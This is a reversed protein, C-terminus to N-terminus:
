KKNFIRGKLIWFLYANKHIYGALIWIMLGVILAIVLRIALEPSLKETPPTIIYGKVAKKKPIIKEKINEDQRIGQLRDDIIKLNNQLTEIDKKDSNIKNGILLKANKGREAARQESELVTDLKQKENELVSIKRKLASIPSWEDTYSIRLNELESRLTILAGDIERVRNMTEVLRASDPEINKLEIEYNKLRKNIEDIKEEVEARRGSLASYMKEYYIGSMKEPKKIEDDPKDPRELYLNAMDSVVNKLEVVDGRWRISLRIVDSSGIRKASVIQRLKDKSINTKVDKLVAYSTMLRAQTNFWEGVTLWSFDTKRINDPPDIRIDVFVERYLPGIRVAILLTISLIVFLYIIRYKKFNTFDM